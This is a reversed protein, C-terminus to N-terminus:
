ADRKEDALAIEHMHCADCPWDQELFGQINAPFSVPNVTVVAQATAQRAHVESRGGKVDISLCFIKRRSRM